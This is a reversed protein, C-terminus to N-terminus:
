RQNSGTIFVIQLTALFANRQLTLFLKAEMVVFVSQDITKVLNSLLVKFAQFGNLLLGFNKLPATTRQFGQRQSAEKPRNNSKQRYAIFVTHDAFNFVLLQYDQNNAHSM